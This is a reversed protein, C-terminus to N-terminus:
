RCRGCTKSVVEGGKERAGRGEHAEREGDEGGDRRVLWCSIWGTTNNVDSATESAQWSGLKAWACRHILTMQLRKVSMRAMMILIQIRACHNIARISTRLRFLNPM